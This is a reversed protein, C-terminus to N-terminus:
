DETDSEEEAVEETVEEQLVDDGLYDQDEHPDLVELQSDLDSDLANIGAIMENAAEPEAVETQEKDSVTQEQEKLVNVM